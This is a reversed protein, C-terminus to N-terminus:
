AYCDRPGIIKLLQRKDFFFQRLATCLHCKGSYLRSKEYGQKIAKELLGAPGNNFLVSLFEEKTPNFDLWVQELPKENINGIIIGSCVGSFINGYPDIHIGKAGLFSNKCSKKAIEELEKNASVQALKDAARGTFRCPHEKISNSFFATKEEESLNKVSLDKQIYEQWRVLVREPGLIQCATEALLKVKDYEVFEAHFPDYSIKLKKVNHSDLFKLKDIIDTKEDAWFGNTEVMDVPGLGLEAATELLKTLHQWYLFPEGGTIHIKASEGAITKLSKWAAIANAISILGAKQPNCKYYCFACAASCKYTLLLGMSTWLKFKPMEPSLSRNYANDNLEFM